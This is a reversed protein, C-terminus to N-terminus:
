EVGVGNLRGAVVYIEAAVDPYREGLAMFARLMSPSWTDHIQANSIPKLWFGGYALVRLGASQFDGRFTVPNYIRRHGHHQDLESMGEETRLLGMLVAAQRHLSLSNPVAALVVGQPSLWSAVRQLIQVPNEVHELVHGLVINEFKRNPEFEEFLSNQVTAGEFRSRLQECFAESGELVTFDDTEGILRETMLGEAPGMELISGPRLHRRFVESCYEIMMSNTMTTYLSRQAVNDLRRKENSNM